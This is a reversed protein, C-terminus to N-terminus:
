ECRRHPCGAWEQRRLAEPIYFSRCLGLVIRGLVELVFLVVAMIKLRHGVNGFLTDTFQQM